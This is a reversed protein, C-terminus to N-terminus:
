RATAHHVGIQRGLWCWALWSIHRAAYWLNLVATGCNSCGRNYLLWRYTMLLLNLAIIHHGWIMSIALILLDETLLCVRSGLLWCVLHLLLTLLRLIAAERIDPDAYNFALYVTGACDDWWHCCQCLFPQRLQSAIKCWNANKWVSKQCFIGGDARTMGMWLLMNKNIKWFHVLWAPRRRLFDHYWGGSKRKSQYGTEDRPRAPLSLIIGGMVALFRYLHKRKIEISLHIFRKVIKGACTM